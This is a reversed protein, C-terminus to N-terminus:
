REREDGGDLSIPGSGTATVVLLGGLISLNKFFQTWEGASTHFILTTPILFAILAVAGWRARVGLIVALSGLIELAISVALAAAPAPLGMDAIQQQTAGFGLIKSVGSRLFIAALFTRAVLPLYKPGRM